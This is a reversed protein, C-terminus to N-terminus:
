VILLGDISAYISPWLLPFVFARWDLGLTCTKTTTDTLRGALKTKETPTAALSRRQCFRM